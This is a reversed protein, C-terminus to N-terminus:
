KERAGISKRSDAGDLDECWLTGFHVVALVLVVHIGLVMRGSEGRHGHNRRCDNGICDMIRTLRVVAAGASRDRNYSQDGGVRLPIISDGSGDSWPYAYRLILCNPAM